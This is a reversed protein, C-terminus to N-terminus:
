PKNPSAKHPHSKLYDSRATRFLDPYGWTPIMRGIPLLTWRTAYITVAILALARLPIPQPKQRAAISAKEAPPIQWEILMLTLMLGVAIMHIWRGWDIATYCLLLGGVASLATCALTTLVEFRRGDRRYFLYLLGLGPLFALVSERTYLSLYHDSRFTPVILERTEQLSMKLWVVSGSCVNGGPIDLVPNLTYGVSSCIAQAAALSGPHTVVEFLALLSLLAPILLVNFADRLSSRQIAVMAFLYPFCIVTAEHSLILAPCVISLLLALQLNTLRRFALLCAFVAMFALVLIEKRLGFYATMANFAITAPSLIVATMLYGWRLGRTLLFVCVLFLALIACQLWYIVWPLPSRLAHAIPLLIAGDLGRRVFGGRYNILWDGIVYPSLERTYVLGYVMFVIAVAVLFAGFGLRRWHEKRGQALPKPSGSPM